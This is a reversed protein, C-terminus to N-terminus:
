MKHKRKLLRGLQRELQAVFGDGGLPRGRLTHAKILHTEEKLDPTDIFERWGKRSADTYDFLRNVGLSDQEEVGCHVRASSWPWQWPMTVMKARVPNREIYRACALLYRADM